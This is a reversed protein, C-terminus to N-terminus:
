ISFSSFLKITFTENAKKAGDGFAKYMADSFMEFSVQGKSVMDRVESESKGLAEGLTAAANMGRGSLQLLDNGMLRGQGAVQTFIRGIDEYSSNTMAAVGAVAQLSQQMQDGAKMGSAALQSAVTAAADLSYATGDVAANVNQMVAEVEKGDKLLIGLQFQANELKMARNIGGTVVGSKVFNNVKGVFGMASNTLNKIVQMGIIGTVSFRKELAALSKEMNSFNVKEAAKGVNELEKSSDSLKLSKKLKELTSMSTQVNKEFQANDFRMEVIREDVVNSM